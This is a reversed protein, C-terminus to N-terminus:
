SRRFNGGLFGRSTVNRGGALHYSVIVQLTINM